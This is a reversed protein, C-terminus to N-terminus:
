DVIKRPIRTYKTVLTTVRGRLPCTKTFDKVKFPLNSLLGELPYGLGRFHTTSLECLECMELNLM